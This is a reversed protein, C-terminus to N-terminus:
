RPDTRSKDPSSYKAHDIQRELAPASLTHREGPTFAYTWRAGDAQIFSRHTASKDEYHRRRIRGNIIAVDYCHFGFGGMKSSTSRFRFSGDTLRSIQAEGAPSEPHPAVDSAVSARANRGPLTRPRRAAIDNSNM